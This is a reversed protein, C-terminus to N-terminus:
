ASHRPSPAQEVETAEVAGSLRHRARHLHRPQQVLRDAAAGYTSKAVATNDAEARRRRQHVTRPRAFALLRWAVNSPV